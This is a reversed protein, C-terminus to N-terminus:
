SAGALAARKSAITDLLAKWSKVFAEAGESQLQEALAAVDIGEREFSDLAAEAEIGDDSLAREPVGGHDAVALLTSDPMTNITLPAFLGDVYLTDSLTEDKTGTSAWLLRQPRAGANMLRMMRESRLLERYAKYAKGGVALGLKGRMADPVKDQVAVDWRSMFVSAVSCVDPPLGEAVRRELGRLYADAAALYQDRDFLLTVNIPIGAYISEEIAPLGAPTGPIKIFLNDRDTRQHLYRAQEITAQTDYALLPSVELSVWGDFRASARHAGAFLDCARRLDTMAVEFFIQEDELGREHLESVQEDYSDGASLAKDFISPNSTQGTIGLERIHSELTGDDLMMRTLNDLWLSQGAEHLANTPTSM